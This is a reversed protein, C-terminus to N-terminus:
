GLRPVELVRLRSVGRIVMLIERYYLIPNKMSTQRDRIVRVDDLKEVNHYQKLEKSIQLGCIHVAKALTRVYIEISM